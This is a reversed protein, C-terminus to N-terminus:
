TAVLSTLLEHVGDTGDVVIDAEDTIEAPGEDSRVGVCLAHELTGRNALGRLARFADLDTTDDGVYMAAAVPADELFSEIGAGKNIRVPPRIELVKRGWHTKLGGAEADAAIGEVM